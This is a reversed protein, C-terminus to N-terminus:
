LVYEQFDYRATGELYRLYAALANLVLSAGGGVLSGQSTVFASNELKTRQNAKSGSVLLIDEKWKEEKLTFNGKLKKQQLVSAASFQKVSAWKRKTKVDSNDEM